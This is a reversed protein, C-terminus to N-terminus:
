KAVSVPDPAAEIHFTISNAGAKVLLPAYKLPESIM